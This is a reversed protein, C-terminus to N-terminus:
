DGFVVHLLGANVIDGVDEDPTGVILDPASDGNVDAVVLAEGFHDGPEPAGAIPGRQSHLENDVIAVGLDSSHFVILAGAEDDGGLGEGPIGVVLDTIGDRDIDGSALSWGFNDGPEPGGRVRGSQSLLQDGDEDLSSASGYLVNVAGADADGGRSEGPVGVALDDFGDGNLDAALLSRGFHDGAEYAGTVPGRQNVMFDGALMIGGDAGGLINVAGADERGRLDEFPVGVALDDDGDADFDGAALAYGFGDGDEPGGAVPGAQSFLQNGGVVIGAASGYLVNVAGADDNGAISESWVGIALDDFGDGDFDGTVLSSGFQDGTEPVGRVAGQQSFSDATEPDLGSPSGYVIEVTGADDHGSYDEFPTGVALDDFGDRDFDGTAVAYGFGDGTEAFGAGFLTEQSFFTSSAPDLGDPSGLLTRVSGGVSGDSPIGIALDDFGDGDFDGMALSEALRDGAQVTGGLEANNLAVNRDPDLDAGAPAATATLLAAAALAALAGGWSRATRHFRSRQEVPRQHVHQLRM